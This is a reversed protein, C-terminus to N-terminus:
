TREFLGWQHGEPDVVTLHRTGVGRDVPLEVNSVAGHDDCWGGREVFRLVRQCWTSTVGHRATHDPSRDRLGKGDLIRPVIDDVRRARTRAQKATSVHLTYGWQRGPILDDFAAALEPDDALREVLEDALAAAPRPPLETGAEEVGIAQAMSAAVVEASREVNGDGVRYCPKGWRTCEDLGADLLLPRLAVIVDPWRDAAEISADM